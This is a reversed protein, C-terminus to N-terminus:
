RAGGNMTRASAKLQRRATREMQRFDDRTFDEDEMRREIVRRNDRPKTRRKLHKRSKQGYRKSVMNQEQERKM